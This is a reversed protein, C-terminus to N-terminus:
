GIANAAGCDATGGAARKTAVTNAGAVEDIDAGESIAGQRALLQAIVKGNGTADSPGGIGTVLAVKRSLDFMLHQM